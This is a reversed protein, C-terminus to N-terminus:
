RPQGRNSRYLTTLTKKDERSKRLKDQIEKTFLKPIPVGKEGEKWNLDAKVKQLTRQLKFAASRANNKEIYDSYPVNDTKHGKEIYEKLALAEWPLVEITHPDVPVAYPKGQSVLTHCTRSATCRHAALLALFFNLGRKRLYITARVMEPIEQPSRAAALSMYIKSLSLDDFRMIFNGTTLFHEGIYGPVLGHYKCLNVWRKIEEATLHTEPNKHQKFNVKFLIRNAGQTCNGKLTNFCVGGRAGNGRGVIENAIIAKYLSDYTRTKDFGRKETYVLYKVNYNAQKAKLDIKKLDFKM